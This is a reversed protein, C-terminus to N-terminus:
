LLKQERDTLKPEEIKVRLLEYAKQVELTYEKVSPITATIKSGSNKATQLEMYKSDYNSQVDNQTEKRITGDENKLEAFTIKMIESIIADTVQSNQKNGLIERERGAWNKDGRLANKVKEYQNEPSVIDTSVTYPQYKESQASHQKAAVELDKTAKQIKDEINVLEGFMIITSLGEERLRVNKNTYDENFM